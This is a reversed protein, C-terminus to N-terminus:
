RSENKIKIKQVRGVKLWFPTTRRIGGEKSFSAPVVGRQERFLYRATDM